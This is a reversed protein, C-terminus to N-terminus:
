RGYKEYNGDKWRTVRHRKTKIVAMKIYSRTAAEEQARKAIEDLGKRYEFYKECTAHCKRHRDSCGKCPSVNFWAQQMSKM